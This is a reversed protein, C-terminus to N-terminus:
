KIQKYSQRRAVNGITAAHVSFDQSISKLSEGADYRKRITRVQLETLPGQPGPHNQPLDIIMKLRERKVISNPYLRVASTRAPNSAAIWAWTTKRNQHRLKSRDSKVVYGGFVSHLECVTEEDTMEVIIRPVNPPRYKATATGQRSLGVYGEGDILGAYYADSRTSRPVVVTPSYHHIISELATRKLLAFPALALAVSHAKRTTAKWAFQTNHNPNTSDRRYISGVGFYALLHRIVSEHTMALSMEPVLQTSGSPLTRSYVAATGEGDFLGAFYANTNTDM